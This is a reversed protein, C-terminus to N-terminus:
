TGPVTLWSPRYTIRASINDIGDDVVEDLDGRSAKLFVQCTRAELGAPPLRPLDGVVGFVPGYATGTSNERFMGETRLEASQSAYLVADTPATWGPLTYYVTMSIYDVYCGFQYTPTVLLWKASMAFGFNSANVQAPTFTTGWMDTSSGYSHEHVGPTWANTDSRDTSGIAGAKVVRVANDYLYSVDNYTAGIRKVTAVIGTITASTDIAFGFNSAVLYHTVESPGVSATAYVADPASVNTPTSFSKTGITADDAATGAAMPGALDVSGESPPESSIFLKGAYEDLPQFWIRDVQVNQASIGAKAQIQGAWQHTGVPSPDLRIEGLDAVYFATGGGPHRWRANEVPNTLDNVDWIFRLSLDAAATSRVRAYARYSGAHTLSATGGLDTGLIRTWIRGVANHTVVTGGSAGSLASGAAPSLPELAEAQYALAATSAASYNRSRFGWIMGRQLDGDDEDVVIRVRGPYDGKIGTETFILEPLTTETHDALQIENGYFDPIAELTLVADVDYDKQAQSWSGPLNLTANTLDAYVTGGSSTIRKIWGGERQILAAKAQFNTRVTSFATGGRATLVLPIHITRNPVRFDVPVQGRNAEALYQTIEADGWDVGGDAKIWDTIDLATRSASVEAPDLIIREAM